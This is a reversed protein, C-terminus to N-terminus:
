NENIQMHEDYLQDEQWKSPNNIIYNAIKLYDEESRIIHEYFRTQWDFALNNKRAYTTIAIKYGRIISALDKAPSKFQSKFDKDYTKNFENRGIIIIGHIHNPMVIFEALEINMDPRLVVTKFWEAQAIKGIETPKLASNVINGFYPIRDKTCITVFYFGESGYNWSQLRASPVRYKNDFLEAM